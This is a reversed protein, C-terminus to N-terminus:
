DKRAVWARLLNEVLAKITTGKEGQMAAKAKVRKWLEPDIDRFIYSAM